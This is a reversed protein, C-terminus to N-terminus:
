DFRHMYPIPDSAPYTQDLEEDLHAEIDPPTPQDREFLERYHARARSRKAYQLLRMTAVTAIFAAAAVALATGAGSSRRPADPSGSM